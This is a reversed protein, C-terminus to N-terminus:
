ACRSQSESMKLSLWASRSGRAKGQGGSGRTTTPKCNVAAQPVISHLRFGIAEWLLQELPKQPFGDSWKHITELVKLGAFTCFRHIGSQAAGKDV